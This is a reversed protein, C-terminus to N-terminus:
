FNISLLILSILVIVNLLVLSLFNLWLSFALPSIKPRVYSITGDDNKNEILKDWEKLKPNVALLFNFATILFCLGALIKYSFHNFVNTLYFVGLMGSTFLTFAIALTSYLKFQKLLNPRIFFLILDVLANAILLFAIIVAYAINSAGTFSTSFVLPSAVLLAFMFILFLRFYSVVTVNKQYNLEFPFRNRFSFTQKENIFYTSRGFLIFLIFIIAIAVLIITPILYSPM